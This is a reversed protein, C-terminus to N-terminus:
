SSGHLVECEIKVFKSTSLPLMVTQYHCDLVSTLWELAQDRLGTEELQSFLIMYSVTDFTASLDLLVLAAVGGKDQSLRLANTVAVAMFYVSGAQNDDLSAYDSIFKIIQKNVM